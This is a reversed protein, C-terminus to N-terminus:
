QGNTHAQTVKRVSSVQVQSNDVDFSIFPNEKSIITLSKIQQINHLYLSDTNHSKEEEENSIDSKNSFM